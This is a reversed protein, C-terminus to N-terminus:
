EDCGDSSAPSTCCNDVYSESESEGGEAEALEQQLFEQLLVAALMALSDPPAPMEVDMICSGEAGHPLRMWFEGRSGRRGSMRELITVM